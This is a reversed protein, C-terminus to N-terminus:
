LPFTLKKEGQCFAATHPRPPSRKITAYPAGDCRARYALSIAATCEPDDLNRQQNVQLASYPEAYEHGDGRRGRSPDSSVPVPKRAPSAYFSTGKSYAEEEKHRLQQQQLRQKMACFEAMGMNDVSGRCKSLPDDLHNEDVTGTASYVDNQKRLCVIVMALVIVLVLVSVGVPLLISLNRYLPVESGTQQIESSGHTSSAGAVYTRNHTRFTFDAETTGAESYASVRLEYEKGPSLHRLELSRQHASVQDAVLTWEKQIAPKLHVSFHLIPCGGSQWTALNLTVFTSNLVVFNELKSSVPAAGKTRAYIIDRPEATGLSNTATMYLSYVSGCKLGEVTYKNSNTSLAKQQWDGGKVQYHLVYDRTTTDDPYSEWEVTVSDSTSSKFMLAPSTPPVAELTAARVDDSMPGAGESNYAQVKVVYSTKRKLNTLHSMQHLRAGSTVDLAEVNKYQFEAEEKEVEKYGIYYGQVKGHHLDKRPPEWSVKLSQSGTPEVKVHLPPGGPAEERTTVEVIDSPPSHGLSNEATVRIRYTTVPHLKHITAKTETGPVSLQLRSSMSDWSSTSNTFHVHYKRIPNNGNYSPSWSIELTRSAVKSIRVEAPASPAEEVLLQINTEDSGFPNRAICSYLAGDRRETLMIRLSSSMKNRSADETLAYRKETTLDMPHKDKEWTIELDPDGKAECRLVAEQGRKVNHSSFKTSFSPPVNVSLAIVRSLGVGIGNHAECLYYGGDGLETDQIVLSGNSLIQVRYSSSVLDFNRPEAG